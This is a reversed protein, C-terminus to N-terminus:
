GNMRVLDPFNGFAPVSCPWGTGSRETSSHGPRSWRFSFGEAFHFSRSSSREGTPPIRSPFSQFLILQRPSSVRSTGQRSRCRAPLCGSTRYGLSRARPISLRRAPVGPCASRVSRGPISKKESTCLDAATEDSEEVDRQACSQERKSKHSATGVSHQRNPQRETQSCAINRSVHKKRIRPQSSGHNFHATREIQFFNRYRSSHAPKSM